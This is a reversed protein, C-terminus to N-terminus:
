VEYQVSKMMEKTVIRKIDENGILYGTLFHIRGDELIEYVMAENVYDGVEILDILNSSHKLIDEKTFRNNDSVNLRDTIFYQAVTDKVKRIKGKNTRIYEGVKIDEM